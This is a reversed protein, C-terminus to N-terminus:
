DAEFIVAMEDATTEADPPGDEHWRINESSHLGEPLIVTRDHLTAPISNVLAKFERVTM